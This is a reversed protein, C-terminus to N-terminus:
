IHDFRPNPLQIDIWMARTLELWGVEESRKEDTEIAFYQLAFYDIPVTNKDENVSLGCRQFLKLTIEDVGGFVTGLRIPPPVNELRGCRQFSFDMLKKHQILDEILIVFDALDHSVINYPAATRDIFFSIGM